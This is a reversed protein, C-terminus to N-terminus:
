LEHTQLAIRLQQQRADPALGMGVRARSQCQRSVALNAPCKRGVTAERPIIVRLNTGRGPGSDVSLTGFLSAVREEIGLLGFHGNKLVDSRTPDFGCGNDRVCLQLSKAGFGLSVEVQTPHAHKAANAVAEECIRLLNGEVFPEPQRETGEVSFNLHVGTSELARQSVKALAKALAGSKELVPSRLEWISHRAEALYQDSEDLLKLLQAKLAALSPPLSRAVADLKLGIGTFGQLLTDHLEQAIRKREKLQTELLLNMDTFRTGNPIIALAPITGVPHLLCSGESSDLMFFTKAPHLIAIRNAFERLKAFIPAAKQAECIAGRAASKDKALAYSQSHQSDYGLIIPM